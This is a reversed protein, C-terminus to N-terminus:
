ASMCNTHLTICALGAHARDNLHAVGQDSCQTPRALSKVPVTPLAKQPMLADNLVRLVSLVVEMTSDFPVSVCLCQWSLNM